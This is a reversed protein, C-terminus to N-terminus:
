IPHTEGYKTIANRLDIGIKAWDDSLSGARPALERKNPIFDRYGFLYAPSSLGRLFGHWFSKQCLIRIIKDM